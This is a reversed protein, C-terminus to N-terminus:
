PTKSSWWHGAQRRAREYIEVARRVRPGFVDPDCIALWMLKVRMHSWSDPWLAGDHLVYVGVREWADRCAEPPMLSMWTRLDSDRDRPGPLPPQPRPAPRATEVRRPARGEWERPGCTGGGGGDYTYAIGLDDSEVVTFPKSAAGPAGLKFVYREGVQPPWPARDRCALCRHAGLGPSAILSPHPKACSACEAAPAHHLLFPIYGWSRRDGRERVQTSEIHTGVPECLVDFSAFCVIGVMGLSRGAPRGVRGGLEFRQWYQARSRERWGYSKEHRECWLGSPSEAAGACRPSSCNAVIKPVLRRWKEECLSWLQGGSERQWRLEGDVRRVIMFRTEAGSTFAYRAAELPPWAMPDDRRLLPHRKPTPDDNM